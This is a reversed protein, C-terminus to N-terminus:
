TNPAAGFVVAHTLSTAASFLALLDFERNAIPWRDPQRRRPRAIIEAKNMEM